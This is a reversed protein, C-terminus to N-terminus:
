SLSFGIVLGSQLFHPLLVEVPNAYDNEAIKSFTLGSQLDSLFALGGEIKNQEIRMGFDASRWIIFERHEEVLEIETEDADSMGDGDVHAGGQQNVQWIQDIPFQSVLLGLSPQLKFVINGQQEATVNALESLPLSQESKDSANFSVDAANFAQHWLWELRAVDPLYKLTQQQNIKILFQDLYSALFEGYEGVDASTSPYQQLYGTVMRTFFQDGVLRNCVPYIGMLGSTIGGLISNRYIGLRQEPSLSGAQQIDRCAEIINEPKPEFVGNYFAKQWAHINERAQFNDTNKKTM